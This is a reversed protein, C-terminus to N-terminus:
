IKKKVIKYLNYKRLYQYVSGTITEEVLPLATFYIILSSDYLFHM